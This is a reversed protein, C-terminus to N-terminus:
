ALFKQKDFNKDKGEKHIGATFARTLSGVQWPHFNGPNNRFEPNQPQSEM